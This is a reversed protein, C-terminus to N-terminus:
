WRLTKTVPLEKVYQFYSIELFDLFVRFLLIL